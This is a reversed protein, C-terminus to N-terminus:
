GSFSRWVGTGTSIPSRFPRQSRQWASPGSDDLRGREEALEELAASLVATTAAIDEASPNGGVIRIDLPAPADDRPELQSV